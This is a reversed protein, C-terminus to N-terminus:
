QGRSGGDDAPLAPPVHPDAAPQAAPLDAVAPSAPLDAVTRRGRRPRKTAAEAVMGTVAASNTVDCSIAHAKVGKAECDKAAAQGEQLNRSVVVINAGMTALGLAMGYGIGKSGGTVIANRGKLNIASFDM